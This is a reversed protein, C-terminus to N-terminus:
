AWKLYFTLRMDFGEGRWFIVSELCAAQNIRKAESKKLLVDANYESCNPRKVYRSSLLVAPMSIM